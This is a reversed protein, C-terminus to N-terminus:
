RYRGPTRLKAREERSIGCGGPEPYVLGPGRKAFPDIHDPLCDLCPLLLGCKCRGAQDLAAWKESEGHYKTPTGLNPLDHGKRRAAARLCYVRDLDIGMANAQQAPNLRDATAIVQAMDAQFKASKAALRGTNPHNCSTDYCPRCRVGRRTEDTLREACQVCRNEAKLRQYRASMQQNRTM